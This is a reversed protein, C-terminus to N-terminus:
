TLKQSSLHLYEPGRIPITHFQASITTQRPPEREDIRQLVAALCNLLNLYKAPAEVGNSVKSGECFDALLTVETLCKSLIITVLRPRVESAQRLATSEAIPLRTTGLVLVDTTFLARSSAFSEPSYFVNPSYGLASLAEFYGHRLLSKQEIVSIM